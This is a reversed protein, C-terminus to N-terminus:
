TLKTPLIDRLVNEPIEKVDSLTWGLCCLDCLQVAFGLRNYDRRIVHIDTTHILFMEVYVPRELSRMKLGKFDAPTVILHANNTTHRWGNEMYSLFVIGKDQLGQAVEQGIPGDLVKVVHERDRFLYPLSFVGMKPAFNAIPAVSGIHLQITGLQLGEIQDRANGLTSNGFIEIKIKGGSKKEVLEKFKEAGKGYPHENTQM